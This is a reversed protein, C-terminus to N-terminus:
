HSDSLPHDRSRFVTYCWSANGQRCHFVVCGLLLLTSVCCGQRVSLGTTILVTTTYAPTHTHCTCIKVRWVTSFLQEKTRRVAPIASNPFSRDRERAKRQQHYRARTAVFQLLLALPSRRISVLLCICCGFAVLRAGFVSQRPTLDGYSSLDAM